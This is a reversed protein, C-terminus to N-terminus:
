RDSADEFIAKAWIEGTKVNTQQTEHVLIDHVVELDQFVFPRLDFFNFFVVFVEKFVPLVGFLLINNEGFGPGPIQVANYHASISGPDTTIAHAQLVM